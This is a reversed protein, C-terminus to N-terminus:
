ASCTRVAGGTEDVRVRGNASADHTRLLIACAPPSSRLSLRRGSERHISPKLMASRWFSWRLPMFSEEVSEDLEVDDRPFPMVSRERESSALEERLPDGRLPEDLVERGSLSCPESLLLSRSEM